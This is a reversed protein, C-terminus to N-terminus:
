PASGAGLATRKAKPIVLYAHACELQLAARLQRGVEGAAPVRLAQVMVGTLPLCEV